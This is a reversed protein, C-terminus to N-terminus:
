REATIAYQEEQKESRPWIFASKQRFWGKRMYFGDKGPAAILTTFIYSQLSDKLENLIRTGIGKGQYMPDVILDVIAAYYKGDDVTRGFGVIKDGSYAIRVHTSRSFAEEIERPLRPAWGVANFLDVVEKWAVNETSNSYRIDL